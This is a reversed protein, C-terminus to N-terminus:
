SNKAAMAASQSFIRPLPITKVRHYAIRFAPGSENNAANEQPAASSTLGFFLTIGTLALASRLNRFSRNSRM